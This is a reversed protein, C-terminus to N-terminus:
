GIDIVCRSGVISKRNPVSVPGEKPKIQKRDGKTHKAVFQESKELLYTSAMANNASTTRTPGRQPANPKSLRPDPIEKCLKAVPFRHLPFSARRTTGLDAGTQCRSVPTSKDKEGSVDLDSNQRRTTAMQAAENDDEEEEEGEASEFMAELSAFENEAPLDDDDASSSQSCHDRNIKQFEYQNICREKHMSSHDDDFNQTQSWDLPRVLQSYPSARRTQPCRERILIEDERSDQTDDSLNSMEGESSQSHIAVSESSVSARVCIYAV